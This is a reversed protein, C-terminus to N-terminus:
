AGYWKIKNHIYDLSYESVFCKTDLLSYSLIVRNEQVILGTCFEVKCDGLKFLESYKKLNMNRDFIAFFHQYNLMELHFPANSKQSKHLVFWIEDGFTYGCTSGRADKFYDPINYKIELINMKNTTYDIKGIQLPYWYYVVCLQNQYNVFSWNKEVKINKQLDYMDPLIIKRTLEYSENSISYTSSSTSTIKRVEDFYSAIYYLTDKYNFIRIDELGIGCWKKEKEFDENLFVEDSLKRFQADVKFRSNLSIWQMPIHKRSGDINFDYNVWRINVLYGDELKLITPTGSYLTVINNYIHKTIVSTFDATKNPVLKTYHYIDRELWSTNYYKKGYESRYTNYIQLIKDHNHLIYQGCPSFSLNFNSIEVENFFSSLMHPGTISLETIGYVNNKINKVMLQISEYLIPNNPMCILLANYIGTIGNSVRDRVFYEKDTLEILKFPSVCRYKIDLYIGGHIYLVCNRWLDAKYAGPKLKDFSYVVEESFHQKIFERCMNDDYLHHTFEPNQSKLLEVTEKMHPPLDLTGWTQFINLPIISYTKKPIIEKIEPRYLRSPKINKHIRIYIEEKKPQIINFPVQKKPSMSKYQKTM